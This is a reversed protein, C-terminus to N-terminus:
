PLNMAMLDQSKCICSTIGIGKYDLYKSLPHKHLTDYLKKILIGSNTSFISLVDHFASNKNCNERCNVFAMYKNDSSFCVCQTKGSLQLLKQMEKLELNWKDIINKSSITIIETNSICHIKILGPTINELVKELTKSDISLMKINYNGDDYLIKSSDPVMCMCPPHIDLSKIMKRREDSWLEIIGNTAYEILLGNDSFQDQHMYYGGAITFYSGNYAAAGDDKIKEGSVPDFVHVYYHYDDRNVAVLRGSIQLMRELLENPFKSIDYDSPLNKYIKQITDDNYGVLEIVDMLLGFGKAPVPVDPVQIPLGLFDRCRAIELEFLWQPLNNSNTNQGYFSMIIDHVIYSNPVKIEIKNSNKDKFSTLLIKFYKCHACLIIKHVNM